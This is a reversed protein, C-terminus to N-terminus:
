PHCPTNEGSHTSTSPTRHAWHMLLSLVFTIRFCGVAAVTHCKDVASHLTGTCITIFSPPTLASTHARFRCRQVWLNRRTSQGYTTRPSSMKNSLISCMWYYYHIYFICFAKEHSAQVRIFSHILSLPLLPYSLPLPTYHSCRADGM